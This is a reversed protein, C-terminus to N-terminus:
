PPMFRVAAKQSLNSISYPSRAAMMGTKTNSRFNGANGMAFSRGKKGM